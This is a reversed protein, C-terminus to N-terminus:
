TDEGVAQLDVGFDIGFKNGDKLEEIGSSIKDTNFTIGDGKVGECHKKAAEVAQELTDGIGVVAGFHKLPFENPSIIDRGEVRTWLHLKTWPRAEDDIQVVQWEEPTADDSQVIVEVSYDALKEPEVLIGEAGYWFIEPWNDFVMMLAESSPSGCRSAWDIVFPGEETARLEPCMFGRYYYDQLVPAFAKLVKSLPEPFDSVKQIRSILCADKVEAGWSAISPYRGDCSWLDGGIEVANEIAAYCLFVIVNKVASIQKELSDLWFESLVYNIHHKTEMMGRLGSVKIYQDENHKLFERLASMGTVKEVKCKPLGLGPLMENTRWRCIELEDGNRPGWCRKGQRQLEYQLDSFYIDCVVFLDSDSCEKWFHKCRTVGPFGEGVLIPEPTPFACQWDTFYNVKGFYEALKIAVHPYMGHDLVTVTLDKWVPKKM